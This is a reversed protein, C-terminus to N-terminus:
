LPKAPNNKATPAQTLIQLIDHIIKNYIGEHILDEQVCDFWTSNNELVIKIKKAKEQM